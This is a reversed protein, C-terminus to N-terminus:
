KSLREEYKKCNNLTEISAACKGQMHYPCIAGKEIRKNVCKPFSSSSPELIIDFKIKLEKVVDNQTFEKMKTCHFEKCDWGHELNNIITKLEFIARERESFMM